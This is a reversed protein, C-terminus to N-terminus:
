IHMTKMKMKKMMVVVDLTLSHCNSWLTCQSSYEYSDTKIRQSSVGVVAGVAAPADVHGSVTMVAEQLGMLRKLRKVLGKAQTRIRLHQEGVVVVMMVATVVVGGGAVSPGM